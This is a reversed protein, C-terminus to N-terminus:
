ETATTVKSADVKYILPLDNVYFRMDEPIEGRYKIRVVKEVAASASDAEVVGCSSHSEMFLEARDMDEMLKKYNPIRGGGSRYSAPVDAAVQEETPRTSPTVQTFEMVEYHM